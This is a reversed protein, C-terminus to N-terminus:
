GPTYASITFPAGWPDALVAVQAQGADFPAVTVSGGLYVARAAVAEVDDVAFTVDWSAPAREDDAAQLWGFCDTFGDPTGAEAHRRLFGPEKADQTQGYGPLCWLPGRAEWGFVEGYFAEAGDVDPTTLNSFNWTGPANVLQAGRRGDPEWVGFVAGAPDALLAVRGGGGAVSAPEAIVKGGAAAARDASEAVDDVCVYTTWGPRPGPSIAAVEQGRLRAVRYGDTPTFDWGFLGGYFGAAREPEPQASDIWCPVGPPYVDSALAMPEREDQM